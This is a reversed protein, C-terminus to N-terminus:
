RCIIRRRRYGALIPLSVSTLGFASPEPVFTSGDGATTLGMARQWVIYDGGDVVGDRNGDAYSFERSTQGYAKRWEIYDSGDIKDDINYDGPSPAIRKFSQIAFTASGQASM